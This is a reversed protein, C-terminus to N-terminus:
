YGLWSLIESRATGVKFTKSERFFVGNLTYEEVTVVAGNLEFAPLNHAKILEIMKSANM